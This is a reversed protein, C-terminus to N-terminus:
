RCQAIAYDGVRAYLLDLPTMVPGAGPFYHDAYFRPLPYAGRERPGAMEAVARAMIASDPLRLVLTDASGQVFEINRISRPVEAIGELQWALEEVTTPRSEPDLAWQEILRGMEIHDRVEVGDPPRNLPANTSESVDLM